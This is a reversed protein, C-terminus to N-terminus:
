ARFPLSTSAQFQSNGQFTAVFTLKSSPRSRGLVAQAVGAVVKAKGLTRGNRRFLVVGAPSTTPSGGAPAITAVLIYEIMRGHRLSQTVISLTTMTPLPNVAQKFVSSVSSQDNVSGSYIAQIGSTGVPLSSVSASAMGSPTLPVVALVQSGREFTITGVTVPAGAATVSATLTVLQGLLSPNPSGALSTVTTYPVVSQILAPSQSSLNPGAANYVAIIGYSGLPLSSTSFTATGNAALAVTALVTSGLLFSVAGASVPSTRTNVLATFTVIQGPNSATTSSELTTTTASQLPALAVATGSYSAGILVGDGLVVQGAVVNQFAGTVLPASIITFLDGQEYQYDVSGILIPSALSVGATTNSDVLQTYQIGPSTGNLTVDVTSGSQFVVAGSFNWLGLGGLTANPAVLLSAASISGSVDLTGAAVQVGGSGSFDITGTTLAGTGDMIFSGIGEILGGFQDSTGIPVAVALSTQDGAATTGALNVLGNGTLSQIHAAVNDGIM